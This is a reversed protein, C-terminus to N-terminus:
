DFREKFGNWRRKSHTQFRYRHMTNTISCSMRPVPKLSSRNTTPISGCSMSSTSAKQGFRTTSSCVKLRDGYRAPRVYECGDQGHHAPAQDVLASRAARAHVDSVRAAPLRLLRCRRCGGNCRCRSIEDRHRKPNGVIGRYPPRTSARLSSATSSSPPHCGGRMTM